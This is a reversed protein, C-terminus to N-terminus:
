EEIVHATTAYAGLALQDGDHALRQEGGPRERRGRNAREGQLEELV